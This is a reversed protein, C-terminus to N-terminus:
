RLGIEKHLIWPQSLNPRSMIALSEVAITTECGEDRFQREIEDRVESHPDKASNLFTFHPIYRDLVYPARYRRLFFETRETRNRLPVDTFGFSYNSAVCSRCVSHVLENHLVELKGSLSEARLCLDGSGFTDREFRLNNLQFRGIEDALFEVEASARAVDADGLFYVADVVTLHFGFDRASGVEDHWRSRTQTRSRVDYGLVRSGFQYLRSSRPPIFFVAFSKLQEIPLVPREGHRAQMAAVADISDSRVKAYHQELFRVIDEDGTDLGSFCLVPSYNGLTAYGYPYVFYNRDVIILAFTPYHNFLRIDLSKTPRLAAATKLFAELRKLLGQRGVQPRSAGTEEEILRGEVSPSTPNALYLELRCKGSAARQMIEFAFAERHLVNLGTGILVLRKGRRMLDEIERQFAPGDSQAFSRSRHPRDHSPEAEPTSIGLAAVIEQIHAKGDRADIWQIGALMLPVSHISKRVLPVIVCKHAEAFHIEKRVFHSRISAPTLVVIMAYANSLAHELQETFERGPRLDPDYWVTIGGKKLQDALNEVFKRDQHSYAIFVSRRSWDPGSRADNKSARSRVAVRNSKRGSKVM